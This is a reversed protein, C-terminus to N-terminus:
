QGTLRNFNSKKDPKKLFRKPLDIDFGVLNGDKDKFGMPVFTDDLGVVVEKPIENAKTKPNEEKSGCAVLLGLSAVVTLLTSWKKLKM